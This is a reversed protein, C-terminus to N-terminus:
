WNKAGQKLTETNVNMFSRKVTALRRAPCDQIKLIVDVVMQDFTRSKVLHFPEEEDCVSNQPLGSYNDKYPM